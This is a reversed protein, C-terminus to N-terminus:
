WEVMVRIEKPPNPPLSYKSVYLTTIAPAGEGGSPPLAEYVQTHKTSKKWRMATITNDNM